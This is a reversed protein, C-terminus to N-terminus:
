RRVLGWFAASWAFWAASRAVPRDLVPDMLRSFTPLDDGASLAFTVAEFGGFVALPLLWWLAGPGLPRAAARRSARDGLGLRILVIGTGLTWLSAATSFSPLQGGVLAVVILVPVTVAARGRAGPARAAVEPQEM